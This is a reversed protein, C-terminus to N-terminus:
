ETVAQDRDDRRDTRIGCSLRVVDIGIADGPRKCRRETGLLEHEESVHLPDSSIGRVRAGKRAAKTHVLEVLEDLGSRDLRSHDRLRECTSLCHTGAHALRVHEVPARCM